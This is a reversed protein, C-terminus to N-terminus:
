FICIKYTLNFKVFYKHIKVFMMAIKKIINFMKELRKFAQSKRVGIPINKGNLFM